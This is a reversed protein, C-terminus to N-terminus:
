RATLKRLALKIDEIKVLFKEDIDPVSIEILTIDECSSLVIHSYDESQEDLIIETRM